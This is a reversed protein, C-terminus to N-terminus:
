RNKKRRHDSIRTVGAPLPTEPQQRTAPCTAVHPMHLREWGTLPLDTSPRRSRLAGTGDRWVATNGTPDPDPDVALPRGAETRTWRIPHRCTPCHAAPPAM